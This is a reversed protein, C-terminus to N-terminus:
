SLKHLYFGFEEVRGLELHHLITTAIGMLKLKKTYNPASKKKGFLYISM